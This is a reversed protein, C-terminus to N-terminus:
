QNELELLDLLKKRKILELDEQNVGEKLENIKEEKIEEQKKEAKIEPQKLELMRKSVSSSTAPYAPFATPSIEILQVEYIHRIIQEGVLELEDKVVYFGFSSGTVDGREITEVYNMYSESPIIEYRLGTNDESLILTGAKTSGLVIDPNHNWLAKIDKSEQLTKSFAGDHIIEIFGGLDASPSNFVAAYGAIIRPKGDQKQVRTELEVSRRIEKERNM